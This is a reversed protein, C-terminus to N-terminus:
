LKSIKLILQKHFYHIYKRAKGIQNENPRMIPKRLLHKSEMKKCLKISNNNKQQFQRKYKYVKSMNQIGALKM